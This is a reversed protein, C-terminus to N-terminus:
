VQHPSNPSARQRASFHQHGARLQPMFSRHFWPQVQVLRAPFGQQRDDRFLLPGDGFQALPNLAQFDPQGAASRSGPALLPRPFCLLGAPLTLLAKGPRPHFGRPPHDVSRLGAGFAMGGQAPTPHLPGLVTMSMGTTETSTVSCTNMARVQGSHRFRRSGWSGRFPRATPRWRRPTLGTDLVPCARDLRITVRRSSARSGTLVM